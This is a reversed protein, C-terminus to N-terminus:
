DANADELLQRIKKIYTRTEKFPPVGKYRAVNGPGANYSALTLAVDGDHYDLLRKLYKSGAMINQRADFPKDVGLEQQLAPMLQMLGQAGVPSVATADFGSEAQIVAHILDPDLDHEKAAEEILDDYAVYAPLAMFSDLTVHVEAMPLEDTRKGMAKTKPQASFVIAGM